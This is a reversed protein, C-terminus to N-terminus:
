RADPTEETTPDPTRYGHHHLSRLARRPTWGSGCRTLSGDTPWHRPEALYGNWAMRAARWNGRRAHRLTYRWTQRLRRIAHRIAAPHRARLARGLGLLSALWGVPYIDIHQDTPM